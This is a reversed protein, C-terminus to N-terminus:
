CPPSYWQGIQHPYTDDMPIFWFHTHSQAPDVVELGSETKIMSRFTLTWIGDMSQAITYWRRVRLSLTNPNKEAHYSIEWPCHLLSLHHSLSVMFSQSEFWLTRSHSHPSYSSAISVVHIIALWIMLNGSLSATSFSHHLLSLTICYLYLLGIWIMLLYLSRTCQSQLLSKTCHSLPLDLCFIYM